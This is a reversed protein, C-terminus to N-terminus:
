HQKLLEEAKKGIENTPDIEVAKKWYEKAKSSNGASMNVIGLNLHAIQHKPEFKLAQEMSNIAESNNGTEYYCVGMDVWVNADKSNTKLYVKYREIAKAKLGSDNLLHALQLLTSSDNPNKKLTEELATIQELNNLDVGSHPNNANNQSINGTVAPKDFVSSAYLIISGIIFLVLVAYVLKTKSIEKPGADVLQTKKGKDKKLEKASSKKQNVTKEVKAKEKGALNNNVNLLSAGCESCFKHESSNTEGCVKCVIMNTESNSM